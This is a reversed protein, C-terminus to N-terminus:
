IKVPVPANDSDSVSATSLLAKTFRIVDLKDGTSMFCGSSALSRSLSAALIKDGRSLDRRGSSWSSLLIKFSLSISSTRLSSLKM